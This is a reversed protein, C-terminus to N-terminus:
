GVTPVSSASGARGEALEEGGAVAGVPGDGIRHQQRAEVELDAVADIEASQREDDGGRQHRLGVLDGGADTEPRAKEDALVRQAGRAQQLGAAEHAPGVADHQRGAAAIGAELGECAVGLRLEGLGAPVDARAEVGCRLEGAVDLAEALEEGEDAQGGQHHAADADGVGHAGEDVALTRGDRVSFLRPAEPERTTAM